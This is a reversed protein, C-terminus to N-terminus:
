IFRSRLTIVSIGAIGVIGSIFTINIHKWYNSIIKDENKIEENLNIPYNIQQLELRYKHKMHILYSNSIGDLYAYSLIGCTLISCGFIWSNGINVYCKELSNM